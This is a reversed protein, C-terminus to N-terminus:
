EKYIVRDVEERMEKMENTALAQSVVKFQISTCFCMAPKRNTKLRLFTTSGPALDVSLDHDIGGSHDPRINHQGPTVEIAFFGNRTIKAIEVDDLFVGYAVAKAYYADPRYIYVLSKDPSVSNISSFKEGSPASACGYFLLLIPILIILKKMTLM